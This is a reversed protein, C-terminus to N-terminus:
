KDSGQRWADVLSKFIGDPIRQLEIPSGFEAVAGKEMVLIRDSDLITNIRHAITLTTCERFEDRISQQIHRDTEPDISATAEDMLIVRSRKLLARAISLLQREGVSFNSGNEDVTDDLSTVANQLLARKVSTWIQDDAFQNFPDLNSRVTGSFLVPDQPIIAINARLDHLGIKSIDVDDITIFGADLEVLRMLGVILSSKGAGTRGVIGIKEKANVSFTLGRLVRPLGPRYRLHVRYFRIAGATPWESAPKQTAASELIAETPMEMYTQIREISVMQTQLQSIMRVTWNLPQTITFAYTLSVGVIGAFATDKTPNSNHALVAAFTAATAICTGVFELRLALWCNVSFNLFYARQNTDLLHYNHMIFSNEVGFARITSLGDLTESLLAFLPSRSISDLRQLERSTKIFYRQSTFYGVLVPALIIMFMPMVYSITVLTIVVSAITSLLGVITGPISEDLTYIDKSMRNVIRGLPTTDFFSTPARLTQTLLKSFLLRSAHLSGVYLLIVRAFLVMAYAVNILMYVYVYYMQSDPYKSAEESWYSIWFTALLTLCQASFFGLVVVFAMCMGGFARIWVGYVSWSVNGVSRDEKVMLQGDNAIIAQSDDSKSSSARSLRRQMRSGSSKRHSPTAYTEENSLEVLEDERLIAAPAKEDNDEKESKVYNSVMQTLLSKKAMLKNYSGHEAIRGDAIVIIDDCQNVFSLSHTVLVVLKDKLTKKICENFIDAGVHSDVASLIDDLLYIDADQYVARAIAVRTRQGGSLNIGKEGIETLDGATLIRLDKKLSSVRLAEKYKEADFELGFTINDRVTANQIFPQQSVYAVRGRVAVSGASCCADGLIGALLTSKGSGVHGVIAHLESMRAAFNVSRLTPGEAAPITLDQQHEESDGDRKDRDASLAIDWKFDADQVFIGVETLDGKGVKTREEALFFSHLRDFSVSAEVVNNLVQPLMFLPFRLINFLALSTLATGVDLTYGLMVYASFSVVTVLSPVFSFITDSGSRAIVYTRLRALEEDRIKMVRQGFLKEWAKLKVVKISSLVEACVKIREDKVAMLRQQLKRMIKSIVTMLPVILLIVVVGAFTAIGIQQWLLCCSVIIQFVAYWVAHLYPTMDQLRQADISMLNTIEGSTRQQRAATSLVMSKEFVATVIASRLQLGTEYCCFFYQRLAFSQVMGSVFIVGTYILGESLPATPDSLYAIIDKIIMPGVFQLSDHILKLVGAVMFRFGFAKALAWVLSPKSFRKQQEWEKTFRKSVNAARNPPDLQFLDDSELPRENGLKMLPTVWSFFVNGLCNSQQSPYGDGLGPTYTTSHKDSMATDDHIFTAGQLLPKHEENKQQSSPNM